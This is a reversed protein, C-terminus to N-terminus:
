PGPLPTRPSVLFPVTLWAGTYCVAGILLVWTFGFSLALLAALVSSIVSAAGNVGWVWPILEPASKELAQVGRPFPVGMLFGLPALMVLTVVMRLPLSWGLTLDFVPPLIWPTGLAAAVLVALAPRHPIRASIYSGMGSFLLLAFLVTALAYSPQGLFLIFRQILPIEVLLYALGILGFYILGASRSGRGMSVVLVESTKLSRPPRLHRIASRSRAVAVPLLIIGLAMVLAMALSALLVFYGGGGFPQWTKGLEAMVQGAQSWKFFHGIFPRDDTPPTVDYPYAAYWDARQQAALLGTFAQYYLPEAMINHQNVEDPRIDPAYVLDFAREDAFARVADLEVPTFPTPKVLLVGLNYSRFAVIREAPDLGAHELATVALSFARLWESPPVQLWRQIVLLGDPKSIGLADQFSELTYRYDEALSYAGSQVPHYTSTLSIVVVDYSKQGRHTYSRGDEIVAQVRPDNYIHAAAEVILPNAEVATVQRAGGALAILIDLGGSPELILTEAGPRLQYAIAAPMYDTFSLDAEPLVVPSLDGGDVLLGNEPPPAQPYLYSLGPLSRVGQSRVVDVRSFANWRQSIVEAGPYQLAYSISKYPSLRLDLLPAPSFGLIRVTIDLLTLIFLGVALTLVALSSREFTAANLAALAALGASLTVVGEAGLAVPALLAAVCGLASGVLNISYTQGATKPFATLLLGVAMGSFFFPAALALYHLALVAVQRQDWAISFSDFPVWNTLLYAGLISIAAALSLNRLSHQPNERGLRPFIALATGSAGYGLLALSVILFAFHYFQAVSFLRTLNIEFILTAASLLLLSIHLKKSM